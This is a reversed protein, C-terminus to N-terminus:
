DNYALVMDFYCSKLKEVYHYRDNIKKFYNVYRVARELESDELKGLGFLNMNDTLDLMKVFASLPHEMVKDIYTDYDESKDHTILKLPVDICKEFFDKYGTEAFIDRIDEHTLMTDEVVDHLFSLEVVGYPIDHEALVSDRVWGQVSVLDYFMDVCHRPHTFYNHGNDRYQGIHAMNSIVYSIRKTGKAKGDKTESKLADIIMEKTTMGKM